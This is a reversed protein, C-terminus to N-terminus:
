EKKGSQTREIWDVRAGFAGDKMRVRVEDGTRLTETGDTERGGAYVKAYGASLIKLPNVAETRTAALKLANEAQTYLSKNVEDSILKKQDRWFNDFEFLKNKREEEPFGLKELTEDLSKRQGSFDVFKEINEGMKAAIRVAQSINTKASEEKTEAESFAVRARNAAETRALKDKNAAAFVDFAVREKQPLLHFYEGSKFQGIIKNIEEPSSAGQIQIKATEFLVEGVKRKAQQKYLDITEPSWRGAMADYCKAAGIYDGNDIFFQANERTQDGELKIRFSNFEGAMHAKNIAASRKAGLTLFEATRGSSINENLYKENIEVKMSNAFLLITHM